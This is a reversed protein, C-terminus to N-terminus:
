RSWAERQLLRIAERLPTRSVGLEGALQVQSMRTGPPIRGQIIATRLEDYLQELGGGANDAM